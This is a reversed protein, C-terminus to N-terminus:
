VEIRGSKAKLIFESTWNTKWYIREQELTYKWVERTCPVVCGTTDKIEPYSVSKLLFMTKAINKVQSINTCAPFGNTQNTFWDLACGAQEYIYNTLCATMSYEVDENCQLSGPFRTEVIKEFTVTFSKHQGLEIHETQGNTTLSDAPWFHKKSHLYIDYGKLSLYHTKEGNGMYAYLQGQRGSPYKQHPTYTLCHGSGWVDLDFLRRHWLKEFLPGAM